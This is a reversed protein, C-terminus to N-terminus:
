LPSAAPSAPVPSREPATKEPAAPIASNLEAWISGVFVDAELKLLLRRKDDSIWGAARKFRAHPKLALHKDVWRLDLELKIAPFTGAPVTIQEREAVRLTALYASNDQYIVLRISNGKALPQSRVFLLASQLDLVDPFRFRSAKGGTFVRLQERSAPADRYFDPSPETLRSGKSYIVETPDFEHATLSIKKKYHEVQRVRVPHLTTTDCISIALADLRWLARVAGTTHAELELRSFGPQPRFFKMSGRAATLGSWGFSYTAEGLPRAAFKGPVVPTLEARWGTEAKKASGKAASENQAAMPTQAGKKGEGWDSEMALGAGCVMMLFGFTLTKV